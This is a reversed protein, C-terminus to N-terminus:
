GLWADFHAQMAAREAPAGVNVTPIVRTPRLSRVFCELELFSSHESYPLGFIKVCGHVAPRTLEVDAGGRHTWGTPRFAVLSTWQSAYMKLYESLRAANMAGMHLVHLNSSTSDDTLLSALHADGIKALMARKRADAYIRCKLMEAIALFVREKGIQYSGVLFLTRKNDALCARVTELVHAIVREQPPFVYSPRCYTTDLFLGTLRAAGGRPM